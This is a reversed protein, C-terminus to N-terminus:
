AIAALPPPAYGNPLRTGPGFSVWEYADPQALLARLLANNLGHGSLYGTFKGLLPHGLLYLDGIADLLKHKPFEDEMRLGGLNVVRFDDVVVANDLSGGQALGLQQLQEYDHMFGFTRARSVERIYAMSSFELTSRTSYRKFVPHDYHLQYDLRLGDYPSLSVWPGQEDAYKVTRKIRLFRKLEAQECIGASQLLFVFPAASGDMIPLEDSSVEVVANDIGLGAFASMLHEITRVQVGDQELCTAMTTAGVNAATAAIRVPQSLDTRVFVIGTNAVAPRLTLFVKQGSHLGVGTARIVNNLTQQYIGTM